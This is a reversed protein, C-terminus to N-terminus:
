RFSGEVLLDLLGAMFRVMPVARWYPLRTPGLVGLVGVIEDGSGYRTLVVATNRMQELAHESGIIVRVGGTGPADRLLRALVDARELVEVIPKLRASNAFEPQELMHSLGEYYIESFAQEEAHRLLRAIAGIVRAAFGTARAAAQEVQEAGKDELEASLQNALRQLEERALPQDHHILRERVAGSPLILALLAVDEQVPLLEVRRVRARPSVPPTVVAATGVSHALVSSALHVWEDVDSEVQHFQHRITRQETPSLERDRMLHQVYFRYGADTPVRGASTHPQTILGVEELAAMDNRITASSVAAYQRAIRESGVPRADAVYQEVIYKLIQSRRESLEM